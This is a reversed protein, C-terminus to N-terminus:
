KRIKQRALYSMCLLIGSYSNYPYAVFVDGPIYLTAAHMPQRQALPSANKGDELDVDVMHGKKSESLMGEGEQQVIGKVRSATRGSASSFSSGPLRFM